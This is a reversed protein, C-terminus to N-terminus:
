RAGEARWLNGEIFATAEPAPRLHDMGGYTDYQIDATVVQTIAGAQLQATLSAPRDLRIRLSGQPSELELRTAHVLAVADQNRLLVFAADTELAVGDAFRIKKAGFGLHYSNTRTKLTLAGENEAAGVSLLNPQNLWADGVALFPRDSRRRVCLTQCPPNRPTIVANDVPYTELAYVETGERGLMTLRATVNNVSWRAEWADDVLARRAGPKGNALWSAPAFSAEHMDMSFQPPGGAHQLMWDHNTGGEVRFFDVYIDEVVAVSRRFVRTQPYLHDAHLEAYQAIPGANFFVVKPIEQGTLTAGKKQSQM